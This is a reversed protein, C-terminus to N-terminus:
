TDFAVLTGSVKRTALRLDVIPTQRGSRCPFLSVSKNMVPHRVVSGVMWLRVKQRTESFSLMSITWSIGLERANLSM